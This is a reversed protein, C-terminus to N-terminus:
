CKLRTPSNALSAHPMCDYGQKPTRSMHLVRVAYEFMSEYGLDRHLGRAELEGLHALLQATVRRDERVCHRVRVVLEDNTLRKVTELERM